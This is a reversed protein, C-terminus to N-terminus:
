HTLLLLLWHRFGATREVFTKAFSDPGQDRPGLSSVRVPPALCAQGVLVEEWLGCCATM